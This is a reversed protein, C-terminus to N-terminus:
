STHPHFAERVFEMADQLEALQRHLAVSESRTCPINPLSLVVCDYVMRSERLVEVEMGCDRGPELSACRWLARRLEARLSALAVLRVTETVPFREQATSQAGSTFSDRYTSGSMVKSNRVIKAYQSPAFLESM